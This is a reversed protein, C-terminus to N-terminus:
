WSLLLSCAWKFNRAARSAAGSANLLKPGRRSEPSLKFQAHADLSLLLPSLM